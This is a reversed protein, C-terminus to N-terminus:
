CAQFVGGSFLMGFSRVLGVFTLKSAAEFLVFVDPTSTNYGGHEMKAPFAEERARFFNETETCLGMFLTESVELVM